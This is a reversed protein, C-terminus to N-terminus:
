ENKKQHDDLISRIREIEATSIKKQKVLHTIMPAISGSTLGIALSELQMGAYDQRSIAASFFHTSVSKDRTLFGKDELRQLLRQVTGHQSKKPDPYLQERIQRATVAEDTDWILKMVALEAKALPQHM